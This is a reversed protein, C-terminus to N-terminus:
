SVEGEKVTGHGGGIWGGLYGSRKGKETDFTTVSRLGNRKDTIILNGALVLSKAATLLGTLEVTNAEIGYATGDPLVLTQKGPQSFEAGQMTKWM